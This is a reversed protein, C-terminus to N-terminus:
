SSFGSFIRLSSEKNNSTIRKYHRYLAVSLIKKADNQGIVSKSLEDYIYKPSVSTIQKKVLYNNNFDDIREIQAIESYLELCQHCIIADIGEFGKNLKTLESGCFSCRKIKSM